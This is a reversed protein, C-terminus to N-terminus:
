LEGMPDGINGIEDEENWEKIRGGEEEVVECVVTLRGKVGREPKVQKWQKWNKELRQWYQRNYEGDSWGFLRRTAYRGPFGGRWYDKNDEVKEQWRVERRDRNYEEEFEKLLDEANQLNKRSEWTDGEATFGKWWVLFKDKGRVKRRNM